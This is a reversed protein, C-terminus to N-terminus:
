CRPMATHELSAMLTCPNQNDVVFFFLIFPFYYSDGNIQSCTPSLRVVNLYRFSKRRLEGVTYCLVSSLFSRVRKEWWVSRTWWWLGARSHVRVAWVSVSVWQTVLMGFHSWCSKIHHCTPTHGHKSGCFHTHSHTCSCGSAEEAFHATLTHRNKFLILHPYIRNPTTIITLFWVKTTAAM